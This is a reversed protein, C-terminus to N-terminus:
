DNIYEKFLLEDCVNSPVSIQSLEGLLIRVLRSAPHSLIKPNFSCVMNRKRDYYCWKMVHKKLRKKVKRPMQRYAYNTNFINSLEPHTLYSTYAKKRDM